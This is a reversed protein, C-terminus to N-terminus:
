NLVYQGANYAASGQLSYQFLSPGSSSVSFQDNVGVGSYGTLVFGFGQITDCAINMLSALSGNVCEAAQAPVATTATM